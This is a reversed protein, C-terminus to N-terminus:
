EKKGTATPTSAQMNKGLPSGATTQASEPQVPVSPLGRAAVIDLAREVPIRVIGANRDVWGYTQLIADENQHLKDLDGAEDSQLRPEPPLKRPQGLMIASPMVDRATARSRFVDFLGTVSFHILLGLVIMALSTVVVISVNVGRREYHAPPDPQARKTEREISM